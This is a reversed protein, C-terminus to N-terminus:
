TRIAASDQPRPEDGGEWAESRLSPHKMLGRKPSGTLRWLREPMTAKCFAVAESHLSGTRSGSEGLVAAERATSSKSTRWLGVKSYKSHPLLEAIPNKGGQTMDRSYINAQKLPLHHQQKM